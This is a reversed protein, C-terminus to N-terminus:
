IQSISGGSQVAPAVVASVAESKVVESVLVYWCHQYIAASSEDLVDNPKSLRISEPAQLRRNM